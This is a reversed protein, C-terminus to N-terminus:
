RVNLANSWGAQTGSEHEVNCTVDVSDGSFKSYKWPVSLRGKPTKTEFYLFCRTSRQLGSQGDQALPLTNCGVDSM